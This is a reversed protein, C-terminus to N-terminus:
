ARPQPELSSQKKHIYCIIKEWTRDSCRHVEADSTTHRNDGRVLKVQKPIAVACVLVVSFWVWGELRASRVTISCLPMGGLHYLQFIQTCCRQVDVVLQERPAEQSIPLADVEEVGASSLVIAGRSHAADHSDDVIQYQSAVYTSDKDARRPAYGLSAGEM